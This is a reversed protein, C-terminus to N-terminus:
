WPNRLTSLKKMVSSDTVDIPIAPSPCIISRIEPLTSREIPPWYAKM